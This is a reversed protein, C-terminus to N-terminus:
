YDIKWKNAIKILKDIGGKKQNLIDHDRDNYSLSSGDRRVDASKLGYKKLERELKRGSRKLDDPDGGLTVIGDGHGHREFWYTKKGGSSSYTSFGRVSTTHSKGSKYGHYRLIKTVLKKTFKIEYKGEEILEKLLNRLKIMCRCTRVEM